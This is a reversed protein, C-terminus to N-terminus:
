GNSLFDSERSDLKAKAAFANAVVLEVTTTGGNADQTYTCGWLVFNMQGGEVPLMPSEVGIRQKVDGLDWLGGIGPKAGLREMTEQTAMKM